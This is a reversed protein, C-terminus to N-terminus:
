TRGISGSPMHVVPSWNLADIYEVSISVSGFIGFRCAAWGFIWLMCQGWSLSEKGDGCNESDEARAGCNDGVM